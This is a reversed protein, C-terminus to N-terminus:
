VSEVVGFDEEYSNLLENYIAAYGLIDKISDQHNPSETLRSVKVLLMCMSAQMPSIYDGLYASWLESIREHNTRSSGYVSGREHLVGKVEDLLENTKSRM